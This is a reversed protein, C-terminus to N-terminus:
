RSTCYPLLAMERARKVAIAVLRQHGACAGSTRLALIKNKENIFRKITTLDKYDIDQVNTACFSCVKKKVQKRVKPEKKGRGKGGKENRGKSKAM